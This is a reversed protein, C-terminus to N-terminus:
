EGLLEALQAQLAAIKMQKKLEAQEAEIEARTKPRIAEYSAKSADDKCAKKIENWAKQEDESLDEWAKVKPLSVGPTRVGSATSTPILGLSKDAETCLEASGLVLHKGNDDQVVPRGKSNVGLRPLEQMFEATIGEPLPKSVWGSQNCVFEYEVGAFVAKKNLM